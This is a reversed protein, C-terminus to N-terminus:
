DEAAVGDDLSPAATSAAVHEAGFVRVRKPLSCTADAVSAPSAPVIAASDRIFSVGASPCSWCYATAFGLMEDAGTTVVLVPVAALPMGLAVAPSLLARSRM